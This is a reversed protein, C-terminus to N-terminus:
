GVERCCFAKFKSPTERIQVWYVVLEVPSCREGQMAKATKDIQFNRKFERL